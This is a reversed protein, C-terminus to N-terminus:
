TSKSNVAKKSNQIQLKATPMARLSMGTTSGNMLHALCRFDAASFLALKTVDTAFLRLRADEDNGHREGPRETPKTTQDRFITYNATM